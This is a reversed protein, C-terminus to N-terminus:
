ILINAYRQFMYICIICIYNRVAVRARAGGVSEASYAAAASGSIACVQIYVCVRINYTHCTIDYMLSTNYPIFAHTYICLARICVRLTYHIYLRLLDLFLLFKYICIYICGCVYTNICIYKYICVYVCMYMNSVLLAYICM